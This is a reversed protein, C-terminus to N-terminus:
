NWVFLSPHQFSVQKSFMNSLLNSSGEDKEKEREREREKEREKEKEKEKDIEYLADIIQSPIDILILTFDYLRTGTHYM